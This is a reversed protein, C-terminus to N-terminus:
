WWEGDMRTLLADGARLVTALEHDRAHVLLRGDSPRISSPANVAPAVLLPELRGYLAAAGLFKGVIIQFDTLPSTHLLEITGFRKEEAYARMTLLPLVFLLVVSVNGLVPRIVMTQINVQGRGPLGIQLSQQIFSDIFRVFFWGFVLAFLGIVTYAIPSSFYSRLERRAIAITAGM